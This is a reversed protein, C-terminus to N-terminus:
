LVNQFKSWEKHQETFGHKFKDRWHGVEAKFKQPEKARTNKGKAELFLACWFCNSFFASSSHFKVCKKFLFFFLFICHLLKELPVWMCFSTYRWDNMSYIYTLVFVCCVVETFFRIRQSTNWTATGRSIQSWRLDQQNIWLICDTSSTSSFLWVKKGSPDTCSIEQPFINQEEYNKQKIYQLSNILNFSKKSQSSCFLWSLLTLTVATAKIQINGEWPFWGSDVVQNGSSSVM